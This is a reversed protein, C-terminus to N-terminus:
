RFKNRIEKINGLPINKSNLWEDWGNRSNNLIFSAAPSLATFNSLKSKFLYNQKFIFGEKYKEIIKDKLLQEYLLYYELSTKSKNFLINSYSDSLIEVSGDYLYFYAKVSINNKNIHILIKEEKASVYPYLKKIENILVHTRKDIEEINWKKISLLPINIRLHATKKLINNKYEWINNSMKSNDIKSALTLNGLRHINDNYEDENIDLTELWQANPKQPMLHEISLDKLEVPATNDKLELKNFFIRTASKVYMNTYLINQELEKDTPMHMSNGKNENILKRKFVEVINTRGNKIEILLIKLLPIFVKTIDSTDFNCLARRQLYTCLISIIESLEKSSIKDKEFIYMYMLGMLLPAPMFSQIERFEAICLRLNKDVTNLDKSYIYNYAIAYKKIEKFIYEINDTKVKQHWEVFSNYVANKPILTLEKTCIFFRFFSELSNPNDSILQEYSKWYNKYYEDQVDSSLNMLMFNRILDSATLKKGTANISEFIKQANDNEDLPICVIYLRNLAMLIDNLTYQKIWQMIVKKIYLYNEYVKSSSNTINEFDGYVIKKYVDDDNILPKLKLYYNKDDIFQNTLYQGDLKKINNDDNREKFLSRIAYLTLFTTTLRQQGDIVSYERIAYTIPKDLYIMIGLFHNTYTNNLVNKLDYLFQKVEKNKDWTYNRQYVPIIFQCGSSNRLFELLGTRMPAPTSM